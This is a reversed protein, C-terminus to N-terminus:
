QCEKPITEESWREVAIPGSSSSFPKGDRKGKGTLLNIDCELTYKPDLTDYASYSYGVVVFRKNRYAITIKQTWRNRGISDNVSTVVLSGRNNLDLSPITGWMSGIWAIGIKEVELKIDSTNTDSLYILLLTEGPESESLLLLSKDFNGDDNWDGTLVSLVDEPKICKNGASLYTTDFLMFFLLPFLLKHM